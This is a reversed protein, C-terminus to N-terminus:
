RSANAVFPRTALFLLQLVVIIFNTIGFHSISQGIEKWSGDNRVLFFFHLSLLDASILM